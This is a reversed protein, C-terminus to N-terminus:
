KTPQWVDDKTQEDIADMYKAVNDLAQRTNAVHQSIKDFETHDFLNRRVSDIDGSEWLTSHNDSDTTPQKQKQKQQESEALVQVLNSQASRLQELAQAHNPGFFSKNTKAQQAMEGADNLVDIEAWLRDHNDVVPKVSPIEGNREPQQPHELEFDQDHPEYYNNNNSNSNDQNTTIKRLHQRRSSNTSWPQLNPSEISSRNSNITNNQM